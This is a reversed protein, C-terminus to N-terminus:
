IKTGLKWSRLAWYVPSLNKQGKVKKLIAGHRAMFSERNSKSNKKIKMNADGFRIIKEKGNKCAKVVSKKGGSISRRPKNCPMKSKDVRAM